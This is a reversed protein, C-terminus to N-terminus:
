KKDQLDCYSSHFQLDVEGMTKTTGCTCKLEIKPELTNSGYPWLSAAMDWTDEGYHQFFPNNPITYEEDTPSPIPVSPKWGKPIPLTFGKTSNAQQDRLSGKIKEDELFKDWVPDKSIRSGVSYLKRM